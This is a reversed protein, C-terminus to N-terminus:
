ESDDDDNTRRKKKLGRNTEHVLFPECKEHCGVSCAPCWHRTRKRGTSKSKDASRKSCVVCDKEKKGELLKLHHPNITVPQAPPPVIDCLSEIVSMLFKGRSLKETSETMSYVIWSNLIVVDLLNQFIKKWYQQTARESAYHCVMKDSVDVGGMDANYATVLTPKEIDTNMSEMRGRIPPFGRIKSKNEKLFGNLDELKAKMKKLFGM